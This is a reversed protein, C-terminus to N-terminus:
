EYFVWHTLSSNKFCIRQQLARWLLSRLALTNHARRPLGLLISVASHQISQVKQLSKQSAGLYLGVCYELRSGVTGTFKFLVRIQSMHFHCLSGVGNIQHELPLKCDLTRFTNPRSLLFVLHTLGPAWSSCTHDSFIISKTKTCNFKVFNAGM